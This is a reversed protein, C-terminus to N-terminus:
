EMKFNIEFFLESIKKQGGDILFGFGDRTKGGVRYQFDMKFRCSYIGKSLLSNMHGFCFPYNFFLGRYYWDPHLNIKEEESFFDSWPFIYILSQKGHIPVVKTTGSFECFHGSIPKGILEGTEESYVLFLNPHLSKGEITIEEKLFNEIVFYFYFNEGTKFENAPISDVNLLCFKFGINGVRRDIIPNNSDLPISWNKGNTIEISDKCGALRLTLVAVCLIAVAGRQLRELPIKISVNM